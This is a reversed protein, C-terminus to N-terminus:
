VFIENKFDYVIESLHTGSVENKALRCFFELAESYDSGLCELCAEEDFLHVCYFDNGRVTLKILAYEKGQASHNKVLEVFENKQNKM